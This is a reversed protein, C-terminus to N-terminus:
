SFRAIWFRQARLLRQRSPSIQAGRDLVFAALSSSYYNASLQAHSFSRISLVCGDALERYFFKDFKRSSERSACPLNATYIKIGGTSFFNHEDEASRDDLM